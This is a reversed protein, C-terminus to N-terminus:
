GPILVGRWRMALCGRVDRRPGGGVGGHIRTLFVHEVVYSQIHKANHVSACAM